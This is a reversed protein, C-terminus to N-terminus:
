KPIAMARPDVSRYKPLILKSKDESSVLVSVKKTTHNFIFIAPSLEGSVALELSDAVTPFPYTIYAYADYTPAFYRNGSGDPKILNNGTDFEPDFGETLISYKIQDTEKYWALKADIKGFDFSEKRATPLKFTKIVKERTGTSDNVVLAIKDQLFKYKPKQSKFPLKIIPDQYKYHLFRKFYAIKKGDEIWIPSLYFIRKEERVPGYYSLFIFIALIGVLFVIKYLKRRKPEM